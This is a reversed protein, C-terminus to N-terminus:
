DVCSWWKNLKKLPSSPCILKFQYQKVASGAAKPALSHPLTVKRSLSVVNENKLFSFFSINWLLDQDALVLGLHMVIVGTAFSGLLYIMFARKVSNILNSKLSFVIYQSVDDDGNPENWMNFCSAKKIKIKTLQLTWLDSPLLWNLYETRWLVPWNVLFCSVYSYSSSMYNIVGSIWLSREAKGEHVLM